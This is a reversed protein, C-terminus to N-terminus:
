NESLRAAPASGQPVIVGGGVTRTIRVARLVALLVVPSMVVVEILLAQLNHPGFIADWDGRHISYFVNVPAMFHHRTFPWLLPIGVPARGDETFYDLLLHTGYALGALGSYGAAARIRILRLILYIAATLAAVFPISHSFFHHGWIRSHTVAAVAFDADAMSGFVFASGMAISSLRRDAVIQPRAIVVAAYAALTHAIPSPM